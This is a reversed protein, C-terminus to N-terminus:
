PKVLIVLVFQSPENSKILGHNYLQFFLLLNEAQLSDKSQFYITMALNSCQM